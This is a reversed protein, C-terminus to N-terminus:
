QLDDIIYDLAAPTGAAEKMTQFLLYGIELLPIQENYCGISILHM